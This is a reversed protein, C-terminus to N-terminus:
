TFTTERLLNACIEKVKEIESISNENNDQIKLVETYQASFKESKVELFCKVAEKQHRGITLM